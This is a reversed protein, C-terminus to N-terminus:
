ESITPKAPDVDDRQLARMHEDDHQPASTHQDDHQPASTHQDDHQPGSTHQDDHQPASTHQDLRALMWDCWEITHRVRGIGFHLTAYAASAPTTPDFSDRAM